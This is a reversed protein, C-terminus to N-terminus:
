PHSGLVLTHSNLEPADDTVLGPSITSLTEADVIMGGFGTNLSYLSIDWGNAPDVFYRADGLYAHSLEIPYQYQALQQMILGAFTSAPYRTMLMAQKEGRPLEALVRQAGEPEGASIHALAVRKTLVDKLVLAVCDQVNDVYLQGEESFGVCGQGVKTFPRDRSPTYSSDVQFLDGNAAYVRKNAFADAAGPGTLEYSLMCHKDQTVTYRAPDVESLVDRMPSPLKRLQDAILALDGQFPVSGIRLSSGNDERRPMQEAPPLCSFQINRDLPTSPARMPQQQTSPLAGNVIHILPLSPILTPAATSPAVCLLQASARTASAQATVNHMPKTTNARM